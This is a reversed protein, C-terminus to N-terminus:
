ECDHRARAGIPLVIFQNDRSTAFNERTGSRITFAPQGGLHM